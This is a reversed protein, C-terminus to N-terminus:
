KDELLGMVQIKLRRGSGGGWVEIKEIEKLLKKKIQNEVITSMARLGFKYKADLEKKQTELAEKLPGGFSTM